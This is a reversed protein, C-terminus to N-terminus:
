VQAEAVETTPLTILFVMKVLVVLVVEVAVVTIELLLEVEPLVKCLHALQEAAEQQTIEVLEEVLVVQHKAVQVELAVKAV